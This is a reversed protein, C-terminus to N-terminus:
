RTPASPTPLPCDLLPLKALRDREFEDFKAVTDPRGASLERGLDAIRSVTERTERRIAVQSLCLSYQQEADLVQQKAFRDDAERSEQRQVGLVSVTVSVFLLYALLQKWMPRVPGPEGRPGATGAVGARADQGHDGTPGREGFM